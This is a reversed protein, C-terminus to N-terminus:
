KSVVERKPVRMVHAQTTPVAYYPITRGSMLDQSSQRSSMLGLEWWNRPVLGRGWVCAALCVFRQTFYSENESVQIQTYQLHPGQCVLRTKHSPTSVTFFAQLSFFSGMSDPTLFKATQTSTNLGQPFQSPRSLCARPHVSPLLRVFELPCISQFVTLPQRDSPYQTLPLGPIHM